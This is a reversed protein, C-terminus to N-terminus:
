EVLGYNFAEDGWRDRVCYEPHTGAASTLVFRGEVFRNGRRFLYELDAVGGPLPRGDVGNAPRHADGLVVDWRLVAGRRRRGDGLPWRSAGSSPRRRLLVQLDGVMALSAALYLAVPMSRITACGHCARCGLALSRARRHPSSFANKAEKCALPIASAQTRESVPGYGRSELILATRVLTGFCVDRT